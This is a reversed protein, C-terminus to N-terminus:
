PICRAMEVRGARLEVLKLWSVGSDETYIAKTRVTTCSVGLGYTQRHYCRSILVIVGM